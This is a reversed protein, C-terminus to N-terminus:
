NLFLLFQTKCTQGYLLFLCPHRIFIGKVFPIAPKIHPLFCTTILRLEQLFILNAKPFGPCKFYLM